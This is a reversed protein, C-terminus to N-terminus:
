FLNSGYFTNTLLIVVTQFLASISLPIFVLLEFRYVAKEIHEIGSSIIVSVIESLTYLCFYMDIHKIHMM